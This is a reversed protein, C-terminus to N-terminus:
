KAPHLPKLLDDFRNTATVRHIPEIDSKRATVKILGMENVIELLEATQGRALVKSQARRM